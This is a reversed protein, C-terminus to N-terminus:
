EGLLKRKALTFEEDSIVGQDRLGSLERIGGALSSDLGAIASRPSKRAERSLFLNFGFVSLAVALMLWFGFAPSFSFGGAVAGGLAAFPNGEAVLAGVAESKADEYQKNAYFWSAILVAGIVL